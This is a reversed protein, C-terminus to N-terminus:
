PTNDAPLSSKPYVPNMDVAKDGQADPLGPSQRYTTHLRDRLIESASLRDRITGLRDNSEVPLRPQPIENNPWLPLDACPCNSIAIGNVPLPVPMSCRACDAIEWDTELLQAITQDTGLLHSDSADATVRQWCQEFAPSFRNGQFIPTPLCQTQSKHFIIPKGLQFWYALYARVQSVSAM